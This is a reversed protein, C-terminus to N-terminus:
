FNPPFPLNQASNKSTGMITDEKKSKPYTFIKISVKTMKTFGFCLRLNQRSIKNCVSNLVFLYASTYPTFVSYNTVIKINQGFGRAIEITKHYFLAGYLSSSQSLAKVYPNKGMKFFLLDKRLYMRSQWVFLTIFEAFM